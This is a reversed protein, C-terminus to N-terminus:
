VLVLIEGARYSTLINGDSMSILIKSILPTDSSAPVGLSTRATAGSEAVWTTGNGVIVNGDTKALAAIALLAASYAQVNTGVAVGLTTRAASASADDLLTEAWATITATSPAASSVVTPNGSADFALYQSARDISNPLEMDISTSDTSPARLCRTVADDNDITHTCVRDIADEVNEANFSGGQTLDLTQTKSRDRIVHCQSTVALASVLTVTGGSEGSDTLSVTYDTTETLTAEVGTATIRTKVLLDGTATIPFTFPIQQGATNTGVASTRATVISITM